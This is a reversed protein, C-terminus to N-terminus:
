QQRGPQSSREKEPAIQAQRLKEYVSKTDGSIRFGASIRGVEIGFQTFTRKIQESFQDMIRYIEARIKERYQATDLALATHTESTKNSVTGTAGNLLALAHEIAERKNNNAKHEM